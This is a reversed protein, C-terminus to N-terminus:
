HYLVAIARPKYEALYQREPGSLRSLQRCFRLVIWAIWWQIMMSPILLWYVGTNTRDHHPDPSLDDDGDTINHYNSRMNHYNTAYTKAKATDPGTFTILTNTCHHQTALYKGQVQEVFAAFGARGM